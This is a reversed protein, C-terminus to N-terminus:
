RRVPDYAADTTEKVGETGIAEQFLTKGEPTGSLKLLAAKIKEVMERPLGRRFAVGDNPIGDTRAIVRTATMINPYLDQIGKTTRVDDYVAGADVQGGMIAVIVKDHGGAFVQQRFVKDPHLGKELLLARPYLYGSTSGPDVWAFRKGRLDQLENIGSDARALIMGRYSTQNNRNVSVLVMQAGCKSNAVVYPFPSLWNVDVKGACMAEVAAVYSAAVDSTITYGTEKEMADAISRMGATLKQTELFPVITMKIPNEKSGLPKQAPLGGRTCSTLVAAALLAAGQQAVARRSLRAM